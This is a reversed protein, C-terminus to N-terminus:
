LARCSHPLAAESCSTPTVAPGKRHPPSHPASRFTCQKHSSIAGSVKYGRDATGPTLTFCYHFPRKASSHPKRTLIQDKEGPSRPSPNSLLQSSPFGPQSPAATETSPQHHPKEAQRPPMRSAPAVPQEAAGLPTHVLTCWCVWSQGITAGTVSCEKLLQHKEQEASTQM